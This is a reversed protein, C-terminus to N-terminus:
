RSIDPSRVESAADEKNGVGLAVGYPVPCFPHGPSPRACNAPLPLGLKYVIAECPVRGVGIPRSQFPGDLSPPLCPWPENGFAIRM